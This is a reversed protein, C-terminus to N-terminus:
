IISSYYTSITKFHSHSNCGCALMALIGIILNWVTKDNKFPYYCTQCFYAIRLSVPEYCLGFPHVNIYM